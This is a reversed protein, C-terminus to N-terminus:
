DVAKKPPPSKLLEVNKPWRLSLSAEESVRVPFNLPMKKREVKLKLNETLEIRRCKNSPNKQNQFFFPCPM